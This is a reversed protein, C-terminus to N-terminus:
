DIYHVPYIKSFPTKNLNTNSNCLQLKVIIIQAQTLVFDGDELINEKLIRKITHKSAYRIYVICAIHAMSESYEM